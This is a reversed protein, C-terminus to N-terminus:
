FHHHLFHLLSFLGICVSSFGSPILSWEFSIRVSFSFFVTICSCHLEGRESEFLRLHWESMLYLSMHFFWRLNGQCPPPVLWTICFSSISHRCPLFHHRTCRKGDSAAVQCLVLGFGLHLAIDSRGSFINSISVHSNILWHLLCAPLILWWALSCVRSLKRHSVLFLNLKNLLSSVKAVESWILVIM